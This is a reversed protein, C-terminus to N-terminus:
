TLRILIFNGNRYLGGLPVGAAAAATDDAFNLSRSVQTLVVYGNTIPNIYSATIAYSASQAVSGSLYVLNGIISASGSEPSTFTITLSNADTSQIDQPIMVKNAADYVTVIPTLSNLSHFINWTTAETSQTHKYVPADQFVVTQYDKEADVISAYGGIATSLLVDLTNVGTVNVSNPIIVTSNSDYVTVVPYRTNLSHTVQWNTAASSQSHIYGISGTVLVGDYPQLVGGSTAGVLRLGSGSLSTASISGSVNFSGTVESPGAEVLLGNKIKFRSDAM